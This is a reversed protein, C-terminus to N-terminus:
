VLFPKYNNVFTSIKLSGSRTYLHIENLTKRLNFKVHGKSRSLTKAHDSYFDKPLIIADFKNGDKECLLVVSDYDQDPLGLFWSNGNDSSYAIGVLGDNRENKYIVGRYPKLTVGKRKLNALFEERKIKANARAKAKDTMFEITGGIDEQKVDNATKSNSENTESFEQELGTIRENLLNMDKYLNQAQTYLRSYKHIQEADPSNVYERLKSLIRDNLETIRKNTEM